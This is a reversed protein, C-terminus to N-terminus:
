CSYLQLDSPRVLFRAVLSRDNVLVLLLFCSNTPILRVILHLLTRNVVVM